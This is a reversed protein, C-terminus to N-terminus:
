LKIIHFCKKFTNKGCTEGYSAILFRDPFVKYYKGDKQTEKLEYKYHEGLQYGELGWDGRPEFICECIGTELIM